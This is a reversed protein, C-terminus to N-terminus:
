AIGHLAEALFAVVYPAISRAVEIRFADDGTRWLVIEAKALITRTCMGVPFAAWDLDLPCGANLLLGARPGALLLGVQRHGADVLSTPKSGMADSLAAAIAPGDAEAALLLWEDPGLWLAARDAQMHARSPVTPLAVGFAASVLDPSGRYIFRSAAGVDKVTADSHSPMALGDFVSRRVANGDAM